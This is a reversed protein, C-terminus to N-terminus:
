NARVAASPSYAVPRQPTHHRTHHPTDHRTDHLTHHRTSHPTHHRTSHLPATCRPQRRRHCEALLGNFHVRRVRSDVASGVDAADAAVSEAFMDMVLTKGGGVDGHIYLGRPAAVPPPPPPLRARAALAAAAGSAATQSPAEAAPAVGERRAAAAGLGSRWFPHAREADSLGALEPGMSAFPTPAAREEPMALQAPLEPASHSSCSAAGSCEGSAAGSCQGTGSASRASGEHASSGFAEGLYALARSWVPMSVLREIEEQEKRAREHMIAAVDGRWAEVAHKYEVMASAHALLEQRLRELRQLAERQTSDQILAGAAVKTDYQAVLSASRRSLPGALRGIM